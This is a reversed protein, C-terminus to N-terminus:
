VGTLNHYLDIAWYIAKSIEEATQVGEMEARWSILLGESISFETLLVLVLGLACLFTLRLSTNQGLCPCFEGFDQLM